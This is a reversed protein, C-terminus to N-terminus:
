QAKMMVGDVPWRARVRITDQYLSFREARKYPFIKGADHIGNGNKDDFAKLAYRGEPLRPLTFKGSATTVASIETQKASNINKAQIINLSGGFGGFIGEISGYNEPDDITFLVHDISDKLHNGIMDRIGNWKFTLSYREGINLKSTPIFSLTNVARSLLRFQVSSSDKQRKLTVATDSVPMLLADNFQYTIEDDPFIKSSAEKLTSNTILPPITDNVASGTFQKSRAIPNISFGSRDKVSNVQLLYLQNSKQKETVITFSTYEFNNVFFQKLPLTNQFLTDTVSFDSIALSLTDMPESFQVILHRDDTATVSSLRPPTTDEKAIVFKMGSALTDTLTLTVDDSTGAADTEPDYLLNRFEDRIAFMRYKGPALNTLLFDGSKGTQTIYDPKTKAPNLTDPMITDLRYSFIMVGDSKEDYVKGAVAGKDITNGTSFALTFSKAMRNQARVDIVDTGVTIVYTTNSRLQEKFTIELETGSWDFEKEEITPSIFIAGETSRRDVYESFELVIKSDTYNVTNPAPFVSIIEPPVSDPPGGEPPRQGACGFLFLLFFITVFIQKM